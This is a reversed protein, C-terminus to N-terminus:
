KKESKIKASLAGQMATLLEDAAKKAADGKFPTADRQNMVEAKLKQINDTRLDKDLSVYLNLARDLYPKSQKGTTALAATIDNLLKENPTLEATGAATAGGGETTKQLKATLSDLQSKLLTIQKEYKKSNDEQAIKLNGIQTTLEKIQNRQKEAVKPDATKLDANRDALEKELREIIKDKEFKEANIKDINAKYGARVKKFLKEMELIEDEYAKALREAEAKRRALEDATLNSEAAAVQAELMARRADDVAKRLREYETRNSEFDKNMQTLINFIDDKSKEITKIAATLADNLQGIRKELSEKEEKARALDTELRKAAANIKENQEMEAAIRRNLDKNKDLLTDVEKRRLEYAKTLEDYRAKLKAAADKELGATELDKNLRDKEAEIDTMMKRFQELVKELRERQIQLEKLNSDKNAILAYLSENEESLDSIESALKQREEESAAGAELVKNIHEQMRTLHDLLRQNDTQQKRLNEDTELFLRRFELGARNAEDLNYLTRRLGEELEKQYALLNKEREELTEIRRRAIEEEFKKGQLDAVRERLSTLQARYVKVKNREIKATELQVILEEVEKDLEEDFEKSSTGLIEEIRTRIKKSQATTIADLNNSIILSCLLLLLKINM